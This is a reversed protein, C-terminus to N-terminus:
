LSIRQITNESGDCHDIFRVYADAVANADKLENQQYLHVFKQKSSFNKEEANRIADQMKTHMVGPAIAFIMTPSKSKKQEESIVKTFMDMGAKSGCYMSWGDYARQAAGSTINIIVKKTPEQGFAHIFANCLMHPTVVNLQWVAAIDDAQLDGTGAIEGLAGANNILVYETANEHLSFTIGAAVSPVSLDASIHRYGEQFITQHRSIGYVITDQRRLAAEALSRGLGSATGTVWWVRM